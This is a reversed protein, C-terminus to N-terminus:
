EDDYIQDIADRIKQDSTITYIDRLSEFAEEKTYHAMKCGRVQALLNPDIGSVKTPRDWFAM